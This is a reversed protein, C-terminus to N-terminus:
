QTRRRRAFAILSGLGTALLVVSSPEPTASVTVANVGVEPFNLYCDGYGGNNYCDGARVSAYRATVNPVTFSEIAAGTLTATYAAGGNVFDPAGVWLQFQANIDRYSCCDTRNYFDISSVNWLQGLDVYWWAGNSASSHWYTSPNWGPSTNGDLPGNPNVIGAYGGDSAYGQALPNNNRNAVNVQANAPRASAALGAALLAAGAILTRIQIM